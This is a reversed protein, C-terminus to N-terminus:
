GQAGEGSSSGEAEVDQHVDAAEAVHMAMATAHLDNLYERGQVAAFNGVGGVQGRVDVQELFGADENFELGSESSGKGGAGGDGLARCRFGSLRGEVQKWQGCADAAQEFHVEGLRLVDGFETGPRGTMEAIAADGPLHVFGEFALVRGQGPVDADGVEGLRDVQELALAVEAM